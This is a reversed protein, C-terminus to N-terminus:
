TDGVGWVRSRGHTFSCASTIVNMRQWPNHPIPKANANLLCPRPYEIYELTPTKISVRAQAATPVSGPDSITADASRATRKVPWQRPYAERAACRQALTLTNSDYEYPHSSSFSTWLRNSRLTPQVGYGRSPSNIM